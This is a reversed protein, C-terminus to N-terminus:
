IGDTTEGPTSLNDMRGDRTAITAIPLGTGAMRGGCKLTLLEKAIKRNLSNELLKGIQLQLYEDHSRELLARAAPDSQPRVEMVSNPGFRINETDCFLLRRNQVHEAIAGNLVGVFELVPMDQPMFGPTRTNQMNRYLVDRRLETFRIIRELLETLNDPIPSLLDM